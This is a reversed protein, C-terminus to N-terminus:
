SDLYEGEVVLDALHTVAQESVPDVGIFKGGSSTGPATVM